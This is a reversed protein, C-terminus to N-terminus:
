PKTISVIYKIMENFAMLIEMREEQSLNNMDQLTEESFYTFDIIKHIYKKLLKKRDPQICNKSITNDM